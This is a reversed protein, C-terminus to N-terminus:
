SKCMYSIPHKKPEACTVVLYDIEGIDIQGIPQVSFGKAWLEIWLLRNRESKADHTIIKDPHDYEKEM